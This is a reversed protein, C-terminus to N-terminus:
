WGEDLEVQKIARILTLSVINERLHDQALKARAIRAELYRIQAKLDEHREDDRKVLHILFCMLVLPLFFWSLFFIPAAIMKNVEDYTTDAAREVPKKEKEGRQVRM